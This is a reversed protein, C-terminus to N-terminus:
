LDAEFSELGTFSCLIKRGVVLRGLSSGASDDVKQMGGYSQHVVTESKM